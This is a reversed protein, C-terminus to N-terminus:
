NSADKGERVKKRGYVVMMIPPTLILGLFFAKLFSRRFKFEVVGAAQLCIIMYAALIISLNNLCFRGIAHWWSANYPPLNLWWHYLWKCGLFLWYLVITITPILFILALRKDKKPDM